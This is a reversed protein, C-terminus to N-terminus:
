PLAVKHPIPSCVVAKVSGKVSLSGGPLPSVPLTGSSRILDIYIILLSHLRKIDSKDFHGHDLGKVGQPEPSETASFGAPPRPLPQLAPCSPQLAMHTLTGPHMQLPISWTHVTRHAQPVATAPTGQYWVALGHAGASGAM